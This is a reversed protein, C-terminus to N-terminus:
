NRVPRGEGTKASAVDWQDGEGGEPTSTYQYKEPESDELQRGGRNKEKASKM